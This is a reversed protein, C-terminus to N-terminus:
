GKILSIGAKLVDDFGKKDSAGHRQLEAKNELVNFITFALDMGGDGKSTVRFSVIYEVGFHQAIQKNCKDLDCNLGKNEEDFIKKIAAVVEKGHLLQYKPSLARAVGEALKANEKESFPASIPMLVAKIPKIQEGAWAAQCTIFLMAVLM